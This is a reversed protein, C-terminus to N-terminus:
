NFSCIYLQNHWIKWTSHENATSILPVCMGDWWVTPELLFTMTWACCTRCQCLFPMQSLFQYVILTDSAQILVTHICLLSFASIDSWVRWVESFGGCFWCVTSEVSQCWQRKDNDKCSHLPFILYRRGARGEWRQWQTRTCPLSPYGLIQLRCVFNWGIERGMNRHHIYGAYLLFFINDWLNLIVNM